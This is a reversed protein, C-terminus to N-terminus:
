FVLRFKEFLPRMDISEPKKTSKVAFEALSARSQYRDKPLM